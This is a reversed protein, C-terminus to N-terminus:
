ACAWGLLALLGIEAALALLVIASLRALPADDEAPESPM